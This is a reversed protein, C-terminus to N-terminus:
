ETEQKEEEGLEEEIWDIFTFPYNGRLELDSLSNFTRFEVEREILGNVGHYYDTVIGYGGGELKYASWKVFEGPMYRAHPDGEYYETILSGKFNIRVDKM